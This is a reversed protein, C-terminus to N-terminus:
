MHAVAQSRWCRREPILNISDRTEELMLVLRDQGPAVAVLLSRIENLRSGWRCHWAAMEKADEAGAVRLGELRLGPLSAVRDRLREPPDLAKGGRVM